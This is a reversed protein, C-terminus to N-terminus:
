KNDICINKPKVFGYQNAPFKLCTGAPVTINHNHLRFIPEFLIGNDIDDQSLTVDQSKIGKVYELVDIDERDTFHVSYAYEMLTKMPRVLAGQSLYPEALICRYVPWVCNHRWELVEYIDDVFFRHGLYPQDYHEYNGNKDTKPVTSVFDLLDRYVDKLYWSHSKPHFVMLGANIHPIGDSLGYSKYYNNEDWGRKKAVYEQLATNGYVTHSCVGIKTPDVTEIEPCDDTIWIDSDIWVVTDYDEFTGVLVKQAIISKRDSENDLPDSIEILEWNYRECYRVHSERFRKYFETYEAGIVFTALAKKM